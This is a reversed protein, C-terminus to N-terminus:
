DSKKSALLAIKALVFVFLRLQELKHERVLLYSVSIEKPVWFKQCSDGDCSRVTVM